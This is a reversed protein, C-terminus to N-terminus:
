QGGKERGGGKRIVMVESKEANLELGKQDLHKRLLM